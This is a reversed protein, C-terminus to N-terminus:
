LFGLFRHQEDWSLPLSTHRLLDPGIHEPMSGAIISDVVSPALFNLRLMRSVWSDNVGERRAIDAVRANGERLEEWWTRAKLLHAIMEMNPRLQAVSRGDRQILRIAKGTRALRLPSRLTVTTLGPSTSLGLGETLGATSLEIELISPGIAVRRVVSRVTFRDASHVAAILADARAQIDRIEAPTVVVDANLMLALPDRLAECISHIAASDLETNPIRVAAISPLDDNSPSQDAVYYRYRRKGKCAHNSKLRRGDETWVLGALLATGSQKKDSHYGQRNGELKQRVSDWLAETM